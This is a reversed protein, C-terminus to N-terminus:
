HSLSEPSQVSLPAPNAPAEPKRSMIVVGTIFLAVCALALVINIITVAKAWAPRRDAGGAPMIAAPNAGNGGNASHGNGNVTASNNDDRSQEAFTLVARGPKPQRELEQIIHDLMPMVEGASTPRNGPRKAMLYAVLQCMDDSVNPNFQHIDPPTEGLIQALMDIPSDSIFPRKGSLMHYLVAGLSYLDARNDADHPSELYEPASYAQTLLDHHVTGISECHIAENELKAIGLGLLKAEGNATLLINAPRIDGHLIGHGEACLLAKCLDLAIKAANKEAVPGQTLAERLTMGEARETVVYSLNREADWHADIIGIVHRHKVKCANRAERVLKDAFFSDQAAIAPKLLKVLCPIFLVTHFALYDEYVGKLELPQDIRYRGLQDGPLLHSGGALAQGTYSEQDAPPSIIIEKGCAPCDAYSGIMWEDVEISQACEPCLAIFTMGSLQQVAQCNPCHLAQAASPMESPIFRHQCARCIM